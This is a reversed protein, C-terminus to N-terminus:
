SAPESGPAAEGEANLKEVMRVAAESPTGLDDLPRGESGTGKARLYEVAAVAALGGLAAVGVPGGLAAAAISGGAIGQSPSSGPLRLPQAAYAELAPDVSTVGPIVLGGLSEREGLGAGCSPCTTATAVAAAGCWQCSRAADGETAGM